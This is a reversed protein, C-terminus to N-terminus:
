ALCDSVLDCAALSREFSDVGCVDESPSIELDTFASFSTDRALGGNDATPRLPEREVIIEGFSSLCVIAGDSPEGM